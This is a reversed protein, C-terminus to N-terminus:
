HGQMLEVGSLGSLVLPSFACLVTKLCTHFLSPGQPFVHKVFPIKVIKVKCALECFAHSFHCTGRIGKKLILNILTYNHLTFNM